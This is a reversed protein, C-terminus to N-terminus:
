DMEGQPPNANNLMAALNPFTRALLDSINRLNEAMQQQAGLQQEQVSQQQSFAQARAEMGVQEIGVHRAPQGAMTM